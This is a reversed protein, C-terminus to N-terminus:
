IIGCTICYMWAIKFCWRVPYYHATSWRLIDHNLVLSTEGRLCKATGTFLPLLACIYQAHTHLLSAANCFYCRTVSVRLVFVIHVLTM